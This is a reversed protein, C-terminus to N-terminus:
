KGENQHYFDNFKQNTIDDLRQGCATRIITLLSFVDNLCTGNRGDYSNDPDCKSKTYAMTSIITGMMDELGRLATFDSGQSDKVVKKLDIVLYDDQTLYIGTLDNEIGKLTKNEEDLIKEFEKVNIIQNAGVHNKIMKDAYSM